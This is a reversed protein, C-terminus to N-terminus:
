GFYHIAALAAFLIVGVSGTWIKLDRVALALEENLAALDAKIPDTTM